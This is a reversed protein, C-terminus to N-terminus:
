KRNNLYKLYLSIYKRNMMFYEDCNFSVEVKTVIAEKLNYNKYRSITEYLNDKIVQETKHEGSSRDIFIDKYTSIFATFDFVDDNYLYSYDGIPLFIYSEGYIDVGDNSTAFVGESRMNWGHLEESLEGAITHLLNPTNLPRRKDRKKLKVLAEDKHIKKYGRHLIDIENLKKDTFTNKISVYQELFKSCYKELDPLIDNNFKAELELNETLLQEFLKLHKM